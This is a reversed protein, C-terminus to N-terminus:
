SPCERPSSPARRPAGRPRRSGFHPPTRGNGRTAEPPSWPPPCRRRCRGCLTRFAREFDSVIDLQRHRTVLRGIENRPLQRAAADKTVFRAASAEEDGVQVTREVDEVLLRLLERWVQVEVPRTIAGPQKRLERGCLAERGTEHVEHEIRVVRPVADEIREVHFIGVRRSLTGHRLGAHYGPQVQRAVRGRGASGVGITGLGRHARALHDDHLPSVPLDSVRRELARCTFHQTHLQRPEKM